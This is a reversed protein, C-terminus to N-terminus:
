RPVPHSRRLAFDDHIAHEVNYRLDEVDPRLVRGFCPRNESCKGTGTRYLGHWGFLSPLDSDRKVYRCHCGDYASHIKREESVSEPYPQYHVNANDQHECSEVQSEEPTSSALLSLPGKQEWLALAIQVRKLVLGGALQWEGIAPLTV